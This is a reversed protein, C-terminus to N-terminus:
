GGMGSYVSLAILWQATFYTSLIYLHARRIRGGFRDLALISDSAVFLAAGMFALASGAQGTEMWRGLSLWAMVLIVLLYIIVPLKMGKLHPFLVRLMIAGYVLFPLAYWLAFPRAAGSTFAAIYCLHAALFSLLGPVFQDGPLMLFIDGLLSCVLGAVIMDQYFSSVPSGAALAMLIIWVMTLPKFLYVNRRPGVSEARIHLAASILALITLGIVLM